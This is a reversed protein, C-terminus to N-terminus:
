IQLLLIFVFIFAFILIVDSSIANNSVACNEFADFTVIDTRVDISVDYTGTSEM